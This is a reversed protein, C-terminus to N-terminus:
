LALGVSLVTLHLTSDHEERLEALADIGLIVVLEQDLDVVGVGHAEQRHRAVFAIRM